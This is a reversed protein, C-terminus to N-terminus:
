GTATVAPADTLPWLGFAPDGGDANQEASRCIPPLISPAVLALAADMIIVAEGGDFTATARRDASTWWATRMADWNPNRGTLSSLECNGVAPM